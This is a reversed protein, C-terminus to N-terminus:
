FRRLSALYEALLAKELAEQAKRSKRRRPRTFPTSLTNRGPGTSTGGHMRCRKKGRVAPARCPRGEQTRARAGCRPAADPNGPPNGNRLHGRRNYPVFSRSASVAGANDTQLWECLRLATPSWATEKEGVPGDSGNDTADGTTTTM